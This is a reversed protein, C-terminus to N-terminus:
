LPLFLEKICNLAQICTNVSWHQVCSLQTCLLTLCPSSSSPIVFLSFSTKNITGSLFSLFDAPDLGEIFCTHGLMIGAQRTGEQECTGVMSCKGQELTLISWAEKIDPRQVTHAQPLAKQLSPKVFLATTKRFLEPYEETIHFLIALYVMLAGLKDNKDKWLFITVFFYVLAPFIQQLSCLIKEWQLYLLTLKVPM